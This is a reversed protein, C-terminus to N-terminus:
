EEKSYELSCRCNALQEQTGHIYDHPFQMKCDPFIFYEDIKIKTSDMLLHDMRTRDDIEAVWTKHTYGKKIADELEEHNYITNAENLALLVARDRTFFWKDNMHKLTTNFIERSAQAIYEILYADINVYRTITGQFEKQFQPLAFSYDTLGNEKSDELLLFLFLFVDCLDDAIRKRKKKQEETIQM